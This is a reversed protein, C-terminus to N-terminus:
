WRVSEEVEHARGEAVEKAMGDAVENGKIGRHAPAWPIDTSNGRARLRSAVEIIARAWCQGPGLQDARARQIAPQCDSFITYEKGSQGREDFVKLAQLIAFM